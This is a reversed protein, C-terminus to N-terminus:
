WLPSSMRLTGSNALQATLGGFAMRLLKVRITAHIHGNKKNMWAQYSKCKKDASLTQYSLIHALEEEQITADWM